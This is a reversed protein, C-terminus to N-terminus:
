QLYLFSYPHLLCLPVQFYYEFVVHSFLYFYSEFLWRDM